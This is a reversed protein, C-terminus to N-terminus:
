FLRISTTISGTAPNTAADTITAVPTFTFNGVAVAGGLPNPSACDGSCAALTVRVQNPQPQGLSSGNFDARRNNGTIYDTRNLSPTGLLLSSMSVTDQNSGNGGILSVNSSAAVGVVSESFTVTMTDSQEFRGDNAGNTDVLQVPVPAAKDQPATASFSAQNGAADRIGAASQALAVSFSGVGTDAAGAGEAIKLTAVAGQVCVGGSTSGGSCTGFSPDLSGNSPVGTLTWPANGATYAALTENFTAAVRDVKGDHDDDFMQLTSLAPATADYTVTDDTSTSATNNNGAADQAKDAAISFTITGNTLTAGPDTVSIEYAAGSGTVTVTGGTATGGRTLDAADFATVPESFSVTFLIPLTNAPDAQGAKQNV